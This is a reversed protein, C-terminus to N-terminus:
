RPHLWGGEPRLSQDPPYLSQYSLQIAVYRNQNGATVAECPIDYNQLTM